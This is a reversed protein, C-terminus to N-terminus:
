PQLVQDIIHIVGNNAVLDATKIAAATTNKNGKVTVVGNNATLNLKSNSLLTNVSGTQLQYTLSAGSLVHYSVLSSLALPAATEVSALTKYGAAIFADDNPAFITLPNGSSTNTLSTVLTSNTAGIRKIAAALFTLKPNGQITTLISGTSPTLVRDIIHIIGNAAKLDPQTIKANNVYITGGGTNNIYAVGQSATQVANQGSPIKAITVPAYLVHYLLINKVQDKTMAMIMAESTIGSAQFAADNPAFFTLNAAKLADGAGSYMMASRLLTYQKDELIQDTITKPDAVTDDKKTCSLSATLLLGFIALRSLLLSFPNTM